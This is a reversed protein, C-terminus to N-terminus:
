RYGAKAPRDAIPQQESSMAMKATANAAKAKRVRAVLDARKGTSSLSKSSLWHRLDDTKAVGEDIDADKSKKFFVARKAALQGSPCELTTM